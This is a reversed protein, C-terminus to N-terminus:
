GALVKVLGDSTMIMQFLPISKLNCLEYMLTKDTPSCNEALVVFEVAEEIDLELQQEGGFVLRFENEGSYYDSKQFFMKEFHTTYLNTAHSEVDLDGTIYTSIPM